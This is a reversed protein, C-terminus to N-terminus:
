IARYQYIKITISMVLRETASKDLGISTKNVVAPTITFNHITVVRSIKAVRSIFTAMQHYTGIVSINVPLEIYYPHEMEKSPAFLEFTLGSAVGTKSIDELLAPMENKTPLQKLLLGFRQNMDELQKEYVKINVIQGHKNEYEQKLKTEDALLMEYQDNSPSILFYHLLGYMIVMILLCVGYKLERPWRERTAWSLESFNIAKM